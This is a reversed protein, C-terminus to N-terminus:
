ENDADERVLKHFANANLCDPVIHEIGGTLVNKMIVTPFECYGIMQYLENTDTIYYSLIDDKYIM